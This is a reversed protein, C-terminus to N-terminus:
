RTTLTEAALESDGLKGMTLDVLFDKLISKEYRSLAGAMPGQNVREQFRTDYQAIVLDFYKALYKAAEERGKPISELVNEPLKIELQDTM